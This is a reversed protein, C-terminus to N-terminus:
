LEFLKLLHKQELESTGTLLIIDIILVDVKVLKKLISPMKNELETLHLSVLLEIMRQYLAIYGALIAHNALANVVFSKGISTGGQSIM